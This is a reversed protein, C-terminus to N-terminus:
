REKCTVRDPPTNQCRISETMGASLTGCASTVASEIAAERTGSAAKRCATEGNYTLCIECEQRPAKASLYVVVAIFLSLFVITAKTTRSM